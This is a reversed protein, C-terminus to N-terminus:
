SFSHFYFQNLLLSDVKKETKRETEQYKKLVINFIWKSFAGEGVKIDIVTGEPLSDGYEEMGKAICSHKVERSLSRLYISVFNLYLIQHIALILTLSLLM